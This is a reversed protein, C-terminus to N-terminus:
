SKVTIDMFKEHGVYPLLKLDLIIFDEVAFPANTAEFRIWKRIKDLKNKNRFEM